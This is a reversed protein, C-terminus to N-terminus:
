IFLAKKQSLNLWSPNQPLLGDPNFSYCKLTLPNVVLDWLILPHLPFTPHTKFFPICLVSTTFTATWLQIIFILSGTWWCFLHNWQNWPISGIKGWSYEMRGGPMHCLFFTHRQFDLQHVDDWVRVENETEVETEKRRIQDARERRVTM